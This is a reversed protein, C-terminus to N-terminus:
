FAKRLAYLELSNTLMKRCRIKDVKKDEDNVLKLSKYYCLVM